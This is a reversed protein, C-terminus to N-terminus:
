PAKGTVSFKVHEQPIGERELVALYVGAAWRRVDMELLGPTDALQTAVVLNGTPGFVRLRDAGTARDFTLWVTENAPNPQAQLHTASGSVPSEANPTEYRKWGNPIPVQPLDRWYDLELLANWCLGAGAEGSQAIADFHQREATSLAEVHGYANRMSQVYYRLAEHKPGQLWAEQALAQVTTWNGRDLHYLLLAMRDGTSIGDELVTRLSDEAGSFITDSAWYRACNTYAMYHEMARQHIERELLQKYSNGGGAQAQDILAMQYTSVLGSRRLQSVLGKNLPVNQLFVQTLHWADMAQERDIVAQLLADRLPHCAFLLDRLEHSALWPNDQGIADLLNEPDGCDLESTYVALVSEFQAKALKRVGTEHGIIIGGEPLFSNGCDVAKDFPPAPIPNDAYHTPNPCEPDCILDTSRNYNFFSSPPVLDFGIDFFTTCNPNVFFRNGALNLQDNPDGQQESIYANPGMGYDVNNSVMSGGYDNCLIELGILASIQENQHDGIVLSGLSLSKFTNNYIRNVTEMPGWFAVGANSNPATSQFINDEVVYAKTQYLLMGIPSPGATWEPIDFVNGTAEGLNPGFDVLGYTCNRVNMNRLWYLRHAGVSMACWLGDFYSVAPNNNGLIRPAATGSSLIGFGRDAGTFTANTNRFKCNQFLVRGCDSVIAHAYPDPGSPWNSNVVFDCTQFRSMNNTVGANPIHADVVNNRWETGASQVIGRYGTATFGGNGNRTAALAGVEANEVVANLTRFRGQNSYPLQGLATTGRVEVGKWRDSCANTFTSGDSFLYGGPEIIVGADPGFRLEMDTITLTAGAPVSLDGIVYVPGTANGFPNSGPSWYSAGTSVAVTYGKYALWEDCCTEAFNQAYPSFNHTQATLLQYGYACNEYFEPAPGPAFEVWFSTAVDNLNFQMFNPDWALGGPSNTNLLRGLRGDPAMAYMGNFPPNGVNTYDDRELESRCHDAMDLTSYTVGGQINTLDIYGLEPDESRLLYLYDGNQSFELGNIRSCQESGNEYLSAEIVDHYQFVGNLDYHAIVVDHAESFNLIVRRFRTYAVLLEDDRVICELEGQPMRGQEHDIWTFLEEAGNDALTQLDADVHYSQITAGDTMFVWKDSGPGMDIADMHLGLNLDNDMEIPELEGVQQDNGYFSNCSAAADFASLSINVLRGTRGPTPLPNMFHPNPQVLDLLSVFTRSNTQYDGIRVSFILYQLCQGPVPVVLAETIGDPVCDSCGQTGPDYTGFWPDTIWNDAILYGEEDYIKGDVLFAALAGEHDYILQQAFAAKEGHYELPDTGIHTPLPATTIGSSGFIVRENGLMWQDHQGRAGQCACVFLGAAAFFNLWHARNAIM